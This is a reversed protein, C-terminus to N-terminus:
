TMRDFNGYHNSRARYIFETCTTSHSINEYKHELYSHRAKTKNLALARSDM